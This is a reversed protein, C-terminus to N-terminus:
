FKPLNIPVLEKGQNIDLHIVYFISIKILKKGAREQM